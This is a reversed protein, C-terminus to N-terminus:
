ILPHEYFIRFIICDSKHYISNKHHFLTEHSIFEPYGWGSTAETQLIGIVRSTCESCVDPDIQIRRDYHGNDKVQNLLEVTFTGKLPWHGSQELEDDHPGKMLYLFVSVHTGKGKGNGAAFVKLRMQYGGKFAFFPDSYWEEKEKSKKSFSSMKVIAPAVQDSIESSLWRLKVPSVASSLENSQEKLQEQLESINCHSQVLLAVLSAIILVAITICLRIYLQSTDNQKDTKDSCQKAIQLSQAAEEKVINISNPLESLISPSHVDNNVEDQLEPKDQPNDRVGINNPSTPPFKHCKKHKSTIMGREATIYRACETDLHRKM